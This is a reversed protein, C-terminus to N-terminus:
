VNFPLFPVIVTEVFSGSESLRLFPPPFVCRRTLFLFSEYTDIKEKDAGPELRAAMLNELRKQPSSNHQNIPM